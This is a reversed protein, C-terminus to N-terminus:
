KDNDCAVVVGGKQDQTNRYELDGDEKPPPMSFNIQTM